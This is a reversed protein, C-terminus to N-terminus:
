QCNPCRFGWHPHSQTWGANRVKHRARELAVREDDDEGAIAGCGDCAFGHEYGNVDRIHSM